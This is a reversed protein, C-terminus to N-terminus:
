SLGKKRAYVEEVTRQQKASLGFEEALGSLAVVVEDAAVGNSGAPAPSGSTTTTEKVNEESSKPSGGNVGSNCTREGRFASGNVGSSGEREGRSTLPANLEGRFETFQYRNTDYRGPQKLILLEGDTEAQRLNKQVARGSIRCRDAISEIGPWCQGSDNCMDALALMVLLQTGDAKSHKWVWSSVHVSM